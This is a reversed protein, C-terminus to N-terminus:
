HHHSEHFYSSINVIGKIFLRICFFPMYLTTLRKDVRNPILNLMQNM